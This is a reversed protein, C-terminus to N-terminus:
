RLDINVSPKIEDLIAQTQKRGHYARHIMLSTGDMSTVVINRQYWGVSRSKISAVTKLEIEVQKNETYTMAPGIIPSETVEIDYHKWSFFQFVFLLITTVIISVWFLEKSFVLYDIAFVAFGIGIIECKIRWTNGTYKM